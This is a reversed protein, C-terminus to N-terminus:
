ATGTPRLGRMVLTNIDILSDIAALADAGPALAGEGTQVAYAALWSLRARLPLPLGNGPQALDLALATWLRRNEHLAGIRRTAATPGTDARARQLDATIRAFVDYEIERTSKLAHAQGYLRHAPTAITM